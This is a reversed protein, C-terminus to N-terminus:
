LMDLWEYRNNIPISIQIRERMAIGSGSCRCLKYVSSSM